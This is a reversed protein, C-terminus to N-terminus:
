IAHSQLWESDGFPTPAWPLSEVYSLDQLYVDDDSVELERVMTKARSEHMRALVLDYYVNRQGDVGPWRAAAALAMELLIDGRIYRPLAMGSDELDDPESEYLYPYVYASKKHPWLEYRPLGPNAQAEVRVVFVDGSVYTEGTPWYVSVGDQLAQAAASTTVGTTYSGSDKKWQFVATETEGGTTVEVTFIADNAGTYSGEVSAPDPGTGRVRLASGVKGAYSAAYDAAAVVYSDGSNSRQADALNLEAQQFNLHLRWNKAPDWVGLFSKFDSAPTVLAQYIEFTRGSVSAAGWPQDLEFGTTSDVRSITYLPANVGIRFQRGVMAATFTTGTGAVTEDNLTVDVTGTNYVAPMIFQGRKILWSWLRQEVVQRFAHSVWQQARLSGAAPCQLLVRGWIRAYDDRAM